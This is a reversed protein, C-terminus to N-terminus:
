AAASALDSTQSNRNRLLRFRGWATFAAVAAIVVTLGVAPWEGLIAHTVAAGLMIVVLGAAALPTLFEAIGFAAPLILGIAALLELGGLVPVIATPFLEIWTMTEALETVPQSVKAFGANGFFLALVVQLVWLLIKM